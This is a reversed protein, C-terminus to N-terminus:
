LEYKNKTRGTFEFEKMIFKDIEEATIAPDFVRFEKLFIEQISKKWVFLYNYHIIKRGSLWDAFRVGGSTTSYRYMRNCDTNLLKHKLRVQDAIKNIHNM